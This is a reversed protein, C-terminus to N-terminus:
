KRKHFFSALGLIPVAKPYVTAIVLFLNGKPRVRMDKMDGDFGISCLSFGM